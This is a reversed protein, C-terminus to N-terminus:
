RFLAEPRIFTVKGFQRELAKMDIQRRDGVITYIAPRDAIYRRHFDALTRIDMAPLAELLDANPDASYGGLRSQAIRATRERMAPFAANIANVMSQRTDAIREPRLPLHLLLSDFVHMAEITKDNQTSLYGRVMSRAERQAPPPLTHMASVGYAFSRFERIEQFLISSMDGGFYVSYFLSAGREAEPLSPLYARVIAQTAGPRHVFWVAREAVAAPERYTPSAPLAIQGPRVLRATAAEVAEVPLSGCYHIDCQATLLRELSALLDADTLKKVEELSPTDLWTSREGYLLKEELAECLLDNSRSLTKGEARKSEVLKKLQKADAKPHQVFAQALALTPAFHADFGSISLTFDTRTADFNITAGLKQLEGRLAEVDLSDSGIYSLYEALPTLHRDDQTGRRYVVKLTFIDNVPNAACYLTALPALRRTTADREFDLLRPQPTAKPLRDLQCAFASTDEAAGPVIPAFDPKPLREARENGMKKTALLCDDTLYKNALAVIQERTLADLREVRRLYDDFTLGYTMLRVMQMSRADIDEITRRADRLAELKVSEFLEDSFDGAKLRAVQEDLIRVAGANTGVVLKPIAAVGVVGHEMFGFSMGTAGMLRGDTVPKDLLGTQNGNSLLLTMVRLAEADPHAEGVGRWVLVAAKVLPIPVKLRYEERGKFPKPAPFDRAPAEGAPIRAFYQELVPLVEAAEFDGCLILGMNGAVYYREFFAEMESLRPNKLNEATGIIPWAYPHPAFLRELGKEMAGYGLSNTARNREEYVTELESQFLRFVPHIMRESALAAWPAIYDPQFFNFYATQDYSTFANLGSGGYRSILRSYDNPIAFRAARVSIANIQSQIQAREQESTAAALLDYRAAISDLLLKEAPYDITGIKDTGKFMIHEFYHAIGTGPSDKAGADVVLAGFVKPQSHDENLWVKLGNSLVHREVQLQAHATSALLAFLLLSATKKM